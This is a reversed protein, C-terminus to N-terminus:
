LRTKIHIHKLINEIHTKSIHRLMTNISTGQDPNTEIHKRYPKQLDTEIHTQRLVLPQNGRPGLIGGKLHHIASLAVVVEALCPRLQAGPPKKPAFKPSRSIGLEGHFPSCKACAFPTKVSYFYMSILRIVVISIGNETM